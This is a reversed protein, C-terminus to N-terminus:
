LDDYDDRRKRQFRMSANGSTKRTHCKICLKQLNSLDCYMRKVYDDFNGTFSGVEEIHDIEIQEERFWEKCSACQYKWNYIPKRNKLTTAIQERRRGEILCARRGYWTITGQRLVNLIHKVTKKDM